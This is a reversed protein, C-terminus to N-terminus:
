KLKKLKVNTYTQKADCNSKVRYVGFKFFMKKSKNYKDKETLVHEGNIYYVTNVYDKTFDVTMLVDFPENIPVDVLTGKNRNGRFKGVYNEALFSPPGDWRTAVTTGGHIQVITSRYSPKCNREITVTASWEYKGYGINNSKVEARESFKWMDRIPKRDTPCGGVKGQKVKFTYTGNSYSYRSNCSAKWNSNIVRETQGGAFTNNSACGTTLLALMGVIMLYKM